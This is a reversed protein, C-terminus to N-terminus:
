EKYKKSKEKCLFKWTVRLTTYTPYIELFRNQHGSLHQALDPNNGNECLVQPFNRCVVNRPQKTYEINTSVHVYTGVHITRRATRAYSDILYIGIGGSGYIFNSRFPADFLLHLSCFSSNSNFLFVFYCM